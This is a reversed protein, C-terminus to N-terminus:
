EAAGALLEMGLSSLRYSDLSSSRQQIYAELLARDDGVVEPNIRSLASSEEEEKCFQVRPLQGILNSIEEPNRYSCRVFDIEPRCGCTAIEAPSSISFFRPADTPISQIQWNETDIFSFAKDESAEGFNLQLPSGVYHFKGDALFQRKHYDGAIVYRARDLPLDALSLGSHVTAGYPGVAAERIGQHLLVLDTSPLLRFQNKLVEVDATYPFMAVRVRESGFSRFVPEDVVQVIPKFFELSHVEGIRTHCDHNGSLMCITVGTSALDQMALYGAHLVDIELRTRHHHWDGLFFVVDVARDTVIQKAQAVINLCDQLRSNRGNSLRTSFAQYNALHLDGFLLFRM